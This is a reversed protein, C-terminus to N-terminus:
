VPWLVDAAASVLGPFVAESLAYSARDTSPQQALMAAGCRSGVWHLVGRSVQCEPSECNHVAGWSEYQALIPHMPRWM